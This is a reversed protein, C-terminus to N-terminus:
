KMKEMCDGSSLKKIVATTSKGKVLPIRVVKGAFEAGAIEHTKYDAGKVLVDPRIKSLIERPTDESFIVVKDVAELAALVAARDPQSNVPRSTGKLRKVSADSNLGVILRDGKARAAELMRVHGSHLIDFCGNTFVVRLGARRCQARWRLLSKLASIKASSKM